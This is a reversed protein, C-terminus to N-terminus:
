RIHHPGNEPTVTFGAASLTEALAAHDKPLLITTAAFERRVPYDSRLRRFMRGREGAPVLALTRLRRDDRRIDYCGGILAAVASGADKEEARFHIRHVDPPPLPSPAWARPDAGLFHCLANHIMTVANLKGDLSYGAIHPTALSVRSFLEVDIEPEGEWVDFVAPLLDGRDVAAALARGNVVPGRSTNVLVAGRKMKGLREKDFLHFTRDAGNITLPVHLTVVDAGMLDELPLLRRDGTIRQLPPDNALVTMGLAAAKRAVKSGVNGVGVVGLSMGRLAKGQTAAIACLASLVYEAVSNANCGPASAFHIGRRDLYDTEVHDTGITATGVFRVGSGELLAGDVRTESRVILAGADRLIRPTCEGTGVPVVEGLREFADRAFPINRDVVIKM